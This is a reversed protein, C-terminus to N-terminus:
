ESKWLLLVTEMGQQRLQRLSKVELFVIETRYLGPLLTVRGSGPEHRINQCNGGIRNTTFAVNDGVNVTQTGLSVMDAM